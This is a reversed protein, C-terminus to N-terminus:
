DNVVILLGNNGGSFLNLFTEPLSSFGTRVDCKIKLKEDNVWGAMTRQASEIEEPYDYALYGQLRIRGYVVRMMDQIGSVKDTPDNYGAIQGCLAIRARDAANAIVADLIDGGVNDFFADVGNPALDRLRNAIDENRYDIVGELDYDAMLNRCKEAGGAIGIVRAGLIRGIQAAISGTSGAAASVVLTEGKLPVCIKTIGFYAALANGGYMAIATSSDTGPPCKITSKSVSRGDMWRFDQWLGFQSLITGVPYDDNESQVVLSAVPGMIPQDLAITPYVSGPPSMWNRITPACHFALNKVLFEGHLAKREVLAEESYAFDELRLMGTPRRALNWRRNLALRGM